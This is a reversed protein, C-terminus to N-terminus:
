GESEIGFETLDEELRGMWDKEQGFSYGKGGVIEGFTVRRPLCEEGMCAVFGALSIRRRRM